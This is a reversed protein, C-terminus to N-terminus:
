MADNNGASKEGTDSNANLLGFFDMMSIVQKKIASIGINDEWARQERRELEAPLDKRKVGTYAPDTKLFLEDDFVEEKYFDATPNRTAPLDPYEEM